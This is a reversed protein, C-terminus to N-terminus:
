RRLAPMQQLVQDLGCEVGSHTDIRNFTSTMTRPVGTPRGAARPAVLVMGIIGCTARACCGRPCQRTPKRAQRRGLGLTPPGGFPPAEIVARGCRLRRWCRAKQSVVLPSGVTYRITHGSAKSFEAIIPDLAGKVGGVSILRLEAASAIGARAILALGVLCAGYTTIRM